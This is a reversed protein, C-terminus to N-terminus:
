ARSDELKLGYLASFHVNIGRPFPWCANTSCHDIGRSWKPLWLDEVSADNLQWTQPKMEFQTLGALVIGPEILEVPKSKTASPQLRTFPM